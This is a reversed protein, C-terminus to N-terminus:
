IALEVQVAEEAEEVIEEPQGEETAETNEIDVVPVSETTTAVEKVEEKEPEPSVSPLNGRLKEYEGRREETYKLASNIVEAKYVSVDETSVEGSISVDSYTKYAYVSWLAGTGLLLIALAVLSYWEREVHMISRDFSNGGKNRSLADALKKTFNNNIM